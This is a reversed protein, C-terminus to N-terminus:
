GGRSRAARLLEDVCRWFTKVEIPKTLYADFGARRAAEIQDPMADASLAACPIARTEADAALRERVQYGDLDGLNMDLVVLQPRVARALPLVAAGSEAVVLRYGARAAVIQQMLVVNLANDEAYLLTVPEHALPESHASQNM